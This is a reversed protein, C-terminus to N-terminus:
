VMSMHPPPPDEASSTGTKLLTCALLLVSHPISSSHPLSSSSSALILSLSFQHWSCIIEVNEAAYRSFMGVCGGRGKRGYVDKDEDM